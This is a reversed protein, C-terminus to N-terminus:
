IIRGAHYNQKKKHRIQKHWVKHQKKLGPTAEHRKRMRLLHAERNPQFAVCTIVHPQTWLHNTQSYVSRHTEGSMKNKLLPIDQTGLQRLQNSDSFYRPVPHYLYPEFRIVVVTEWSKCHTTEIKNCNRNKEVVLQPMNHGCTTVATGRTGVLEAWSSSRKYARNSSTRSAASDVWSDVPPTFDATTFATNTLWCLSTYM